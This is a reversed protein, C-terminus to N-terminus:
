TRTDFREGGVCRSGMNRSQGTRHGLSQSGRRLEGEHSTSAKGEVAEALRFKLTHSLGNGNEPESRAHQDWMETVSAIRIADTSVRMSM